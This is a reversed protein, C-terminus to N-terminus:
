EQRMVDLAEAELLRIDAFLLDYDEESLNMRDLEHQLPVYDLAVPGNMGVRWQNGVKRWLLFAPVNDPWVDLPQQEDEWDRYTM